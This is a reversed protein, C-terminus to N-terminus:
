GPVVGEALTEAVEVGGAPVGVDEGARGEGAVGLRTPRVQRCHQRKGKQGRRRGELRHDGDLEDDGPERGVGQPAHEAHTDDRAQDAGDDELEAGEEGVIGVAAGHPSLDGGEDREGEEADLEGQTWRVPAVADQGPANTTERDTLDQGAPEALAGEVGQQQDGGEDGVAGQERRWSRVTVEGRAESGADGGTEGHEPNPNQEARGPHEGPEVDVLLGVKGSGIVVREALGM